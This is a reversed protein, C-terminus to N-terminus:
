GIVGVGVLIAVDIKGIYIGGGLIGRKALGNRSNCLNGLVVTTWGVESLLGPNREAQWVFIRGEIVESKHTHCIGPM